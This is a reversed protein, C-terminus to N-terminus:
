SGSWCRFDEKCERSRLGSPRWVGFGCSRGLELEGAPDLLLRSPRLIQLNWCASSCVAPLQANCRAPLQGTMGGAQTTCRALLAHLVGALQMGHLAVPVALLGPVSSTTYGPTQSHLKAM